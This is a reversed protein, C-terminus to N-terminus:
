GNVSELGAEYEAQTVMPWGAYARKLMSVNGKLITIWPSRGDWEASYVINAMNDIREGMTHLQGAFVDAMRSPDTRREAAILIHLTM